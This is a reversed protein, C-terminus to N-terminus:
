WHHRRRHYHGPGRYPYFYQYPRNFYFPVEWPIVYQTAPAPTQQIQQVELLQNRRTIQIFILILFVLLLILVIQLLEDM